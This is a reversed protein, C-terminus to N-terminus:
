LSSVQCLKVKVLFSKIEASILLNEDFILNGIYISKKQM